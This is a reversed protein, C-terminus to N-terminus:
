GKIRAPQAFALLADRDAGLVFGAKIVKDADAEYRKLYDARSPYLQALRAAPLPKTSGLLICLLSPNSGPIGSLVDVPVDVPPTRIGGLAIGDSDRRATSKGPLLELRRAEPPATGASVWEDLSRLAANAVLYMPGNNIPVGCDLLNAVSGLLHVDAHATGAVEWLRFRENDPQRVAASNLVGTVDAESQIDLVPADVDTRFLPQTTGFSATIDASKGPGVLPLIGSARSHV